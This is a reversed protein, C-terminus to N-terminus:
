PKAKTHPGINERTLKKCPTGPRLFETTGMYWRGGVEGVVWTNADVDGKGPTHHRQWKGDKTHEICLHGSQFTVKTIASTVPWGFVESGAGAPHSKIVTIDAERPPTFSPMPEPEPTLEPTPQPTPTANDAVPLQAIEAVTLWLLVADRRAERWAALAIRDGDRSARIFRPRGDTWVRRVGDPGVIIARESRSDQGVVIGGSLVTYEHVQLDPRHYTEDGTWIRGADDVYRFGQSGNAPVNQHLVGARDYIVPSVGYSTGLVTWHGDRWEVNRGDVHMQGAFRWGGVTTCRPFLLNQGRYLEVRGRHTELHSGTILVVFEGGPLADAYWGGPIIQERM